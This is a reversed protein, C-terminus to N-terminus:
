RGESDATPAEPPHALMRALVRACVDALTAATMCYTENPPAGRFGALVVDALADKIAEAVGANVWAEPDTPDPVTGYVTTAPREADNHTDM